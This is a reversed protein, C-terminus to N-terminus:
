WLVKLLLEPGGGDAPFSLCLAASLTYINLPKQSVCHIKLIQLRIQLSAALLLWLRERCGSVQTTGRLCRQGKQM